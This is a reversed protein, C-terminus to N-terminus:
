ARAIAQEEVSPNWQPEVIYIREAVSLNLRFFPLKLLFHQVTSLVGSVRVLGVSGTGTTMLLVKTPRNIYDNLLTRRRELSLSGDIRIYSM